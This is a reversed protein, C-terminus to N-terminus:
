VVDGGGEILRKREGKEKEGKVMVVGKKEREKRDKEEWEKKEKERRLM